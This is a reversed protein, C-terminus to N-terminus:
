DEEWMRELKAIEKKFESDQHINVFDDKYFDYETYVWYLNGKQAYKVATRIHKLVENRNFDRKSHYRALIFHGMFLSEFDQSQHFLVILESATRSADDYFSAGRMFLSKARLALASSFTQDSKFAQETRFSLEDWNKAVELCTFLLKNLNRLSYKSINHIGEICIKACKKYFENEYNEKDFEEEGFVFYYNALLGAFWPNHRNKDYLAKLTKEVNDRASLRFNLYNYFDGGIWEYCSFRQSIGKFSKQGMYHFEYSRQTRSIYERYFRDGVIIRSSSEEASSQIRKALTVPFGEYSYKKNKQKSDIVPYEMLSLDGTNIGINLENQEKDGGLRKKNFHSFYWEYKLTAALQLASELVGSGFSEHPFFAIFEDGMFKHNREDALIKWKDNNLVKQITKHFGLLFNKFTNKELYNSIGTSDEIDAFLITVINKKSKGKAM